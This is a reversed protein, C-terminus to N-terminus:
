IRKSVAATKEEGMLKKSRKPNKKAVAIISNQLNTLKFGITGSIIPMAAYENNLKKGEVGWVSNRNSKAEKNTNIFHM